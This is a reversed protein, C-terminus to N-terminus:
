LWFENRRKLKKHWNALIILNTNRLGLYFMLWNLSVNYRIIYKKTENVCNAWLNLITIPFIDIPRSFCYSILSLLFHSKNPSMTVYFCSMDTWLVMTESRWTEMFKETSRIIGSCSSSRTINMLFNTKKEEWANSCLRRSRRVTKLVSLFSAWKWTCTVSWLSGWDQTIVSLSLLYCFYNLQSELKLLGPNWGPDMELGSFDLM